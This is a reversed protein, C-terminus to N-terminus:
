DPTAHDPGVCLGRPNASTTVNSDTTALTATHIHLRTALDILDPHLRTHALVGDIAVDLHDFRTVLAHMRRRQSSAVCETVRRRAPRVAHKSHKGGSTTADSTSSRVSLRSPTQAPANFGSGPVAHAICTPEIILVAQYVYLITIIQAHGNLQAAGGELRRRAAERGVVIPM